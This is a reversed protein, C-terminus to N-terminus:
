ASEDCLIEVVGVEEMRTAGISMEAYAQMSFCKTSEETIRGKFDQGISLLLSNQSWALAKKYGNADVAGAADYLGTTANFTLASGQTALRELRIFKFGMFTDIDGQVLAKVTNFDSSTTETSGLLSELMVADLALYRQISPDVEAANLIRSARRLAQVNLNAGSGSDVSAIQQGTGLSVATAGAVGGYASGSAAAIIADDMARGFAFQFAQLYMSSPDILTRVKDASDFLDAHNYDELSVARRTNPTDSIPTDSHRGTKKEAVVTGLRDFYQTKGNQSENRVCSRLRSGKQQALHFWNANFQDVFATTITTSM